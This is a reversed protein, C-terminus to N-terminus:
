PRKKKRAHLVLLASAAVAGGIIALTTMDSAPPAPAPPPQPPGQCLGKAINAGAAGAQAGAPGGAAAGAATGIAQGASGSLLQCGLDAVAGIVDEIGQIIEGVLHTIWNWADAYWTRVIKRWVLMMQYPNTTKNWPKAPDQKDIWMYFGYDDGNDPHKVFVLPNQNSVDDDYMLNHLTAVKSDSFMSGSIFDSNAQSPLGAGLWQRLDPFPAGEWTKENPQPITNRMSSSICGSCDHGLENNIFAQWEAPMANVSHIVFQSANYPVMFPGVKIMKSSVTPAAKTGSPQPAGVKVNYNPDITKCVEGVAIRMWTGHWIFKGDATCTGEAPPGTPAPLAAVALRMPSAKAAAADRDGLADLVADCGYCGLGLLSRAKPLMRTRGLNVIEAAMGTEAANALGVHIAAAPSMGRAINRRTMEAARAWLTPEIANAIKKLQEKRQAPPYAKTVHGLILSAVKNGYGNFPLGSSSVDGLGVMTIATGGGKAPKEKVIVNGTQNLWYPIKPGYYTGRPAWKTIRVGQGIPDKLVYKPVVYGGDGVAPNDFTGDPAQLTVFAHRELGEDKVYQPIAYSGRRSKPFTYAM